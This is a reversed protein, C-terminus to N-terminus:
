TDNGRTGWNRMDCKLALSGGRDLSWTPLGKIKHHRQEPHDVIKSFALLQAFLLFVSQLAFTGM